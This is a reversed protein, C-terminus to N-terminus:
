DIGGVLCSLNEVSKIKEPTYIKYFDRFYKELKLLILLKTNYLDSQFNCM